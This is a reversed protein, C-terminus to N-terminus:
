QATRSMVMGGFGDLKIKNDILGDDPHLGLVKQWDKEKFGFECKNKSFNLVVLVEDADSRRKYMIVSGPLLDRSILELSGQRLAASTNRITLVQRLTNLLSSRAQGETEVNVRQHDANVPLWTREATSFGANVSADWQMPTRVEDRNITIGLGDFVVWPVFGFKHPIPDLAQEFPIKGDTMGIEEGYYICPVARVTFQLLHLLKAKQLDDGLRKLSRRNDHNSFVYVPMFPDPYQSEIEGILEYFYNANFHFTLMGFDFLLGLGDNRDDGLFKRIINRPGSVEGLLLKDGYQDCISRLERAFQFSEPLNLSYRLEQFFRSSGTDKPLLQLFFPNNRYGADKFISNFIDLRFGDVGEALWFRVIDLMRKKVDPDRYNLDPQFALFSSWYYQHREESYHWGSGGTLSQWNNPEDRWLYWDAKPNDRSSRSEKFWPHEDSTHNMVMDFIIKMGRQHVQEILQRADVLTGYEPAINTYNSIDYGFDKQPSAFFPSCWLTEVGLDRLYDLKQIIGQLDGIGDGNTDYFSRPYIQYLTTSHYWPKTSLSAIGKPLLFKFFYALRTGEM